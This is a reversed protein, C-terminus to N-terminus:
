PKTAPIPALLTGSLVAYTVVISALFQPAVFCMITDLLDMSVM